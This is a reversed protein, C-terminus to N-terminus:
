CSGSKQVVSIHYETQEEDTLESTGRWIAESVQCSVM